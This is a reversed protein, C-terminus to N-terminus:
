DCCGCEAFNASGSARMWGVLNSSTRVKVWREKVGRKLVAFECENADAFGCEGKLNGEHESDFKFWAGKGWFDWNGDDRFGYRLVVDGRKFSIGEKALEKTLEEAGTRTLLAQDPQRVVELGALETVSEGAKLKRYASRSDAWSSYIEQDQVLSVKISAETEGAARPQPCANANIVPLKPLPTRQAFALTTLLLLVGIHVANMCCLMSFAGLLAEM